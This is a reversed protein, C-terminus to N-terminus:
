GHRLDQQWTKEIITERTHSFTVYLPATQTLAQGPWYQHSASILQALASFVWYSRVIWLKMVVSWLVHRLLMEVLPLVVVKLLLEDTWSVATLTASDCTLDSYPMSDARTHAPKTMPFTFPYFWSQLRLKWNEEQCQMAAKYGKSSPVYFNDTCHLYMQSLM